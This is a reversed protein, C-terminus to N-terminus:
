ALAQFPLAVPGEVPSTIAFIKPSNKGWLSCPVSVCMSVEYPVYCPSPCRVSVSCAYLSASLMTVNARPPRVTGLARWAGGGLQM